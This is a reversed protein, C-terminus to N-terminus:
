MMFLAGLPIVDLFGSCHEPKKKNVTPQKLGTIPSATRFRRKILSLVAAPDLPSERLSTRVTATVLLGLSWIQRLCFVSACRQDTKLEHRYNSLQNLRLTSIQNKIIV